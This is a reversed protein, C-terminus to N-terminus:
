TKRSKLTEMSLDATIRILKGKYKIQHKERAAKLTREKNWTRLTKTLIYQLSTRKQLQRNPTRFAQQVQIIM